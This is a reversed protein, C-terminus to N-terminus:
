ATGGYAAAMSARGPEDAAVDEALGGDAALGGHASPMRQRDRADGGGDIQRRGGPPEGVLDVDVAGAGRGGLERAKVVGGLELHQPAGLALPADAGLFRRAVVEPAQLIRNMAGHEVAGGGGAAAGELRDLQEHVAADDMMGGAASAVAAAVPGVVGQAPELEGVAREEAHDLREHAEAM